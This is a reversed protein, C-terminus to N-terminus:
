SASGPLAIVAARSADAGELGVRSSPRAAPVTPVAGQRGAARPLGDAGAAAAADPILLRPVAARWACRQVGLLLLAPGAGGVGLATTVESVTSPGTAEGPIAPVRTTASAATLARLFAKIAGRGDAEYAAAVTRRIQAGPRTAPVADARGPLRRAVADERGAQLFAEIVGGKAGMGGTTTAGLVALPRGTVKSSRGM